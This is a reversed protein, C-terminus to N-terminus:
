LMVSRSVMSASSFRRLLIPVITVRRAVFINMVCEFSAAYKTSFPSYHAHAWGDDGFGDRWVFQRAIKAHRWPPHLIIHPRKTTKAFDTSFDHHTFM